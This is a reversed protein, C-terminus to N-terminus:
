PKALVGGSVPYSCGTTKPFTLPLGRISRVALYAWAEAEMGDGDFGADEASVIKTGERAILNALDTMIHPNHRGGGCIIWTKPAKPLHDVARAIAHAAVSALTRAVTEVSLDSTEPLQFDSRDLSKPVPKEFFADDLYKALLAQDVKGEAAIMGGQDYSIGVHRQVWQDILSNGPGTDFAILEDNHIYSINSIGGINVFAVASDPETAIASHAALAQHYVPILPAGQGGHVMDNARMDFVVPVGTETALTQGDGLQVTLAQEPRHLVTQGHFGIIDVESKEIHQEALFDSVADVHAKTIEDEVAELVGRREYRDAKLTKAQELALALRDRMSAAYPFFASVGREVHTLGDTRLLAVDIGDM